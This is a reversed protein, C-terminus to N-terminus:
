LVQALWPLSPIITGNPHKWPVSATTLAANPMQAIVYHHSVGSVVGGITYNCLRM